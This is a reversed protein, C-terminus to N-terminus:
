VYMSLPGKRIKLWPGWVVKIRGQVTTMETIWIGYFLRMVIKGSNHEVIKHRLAKALNTHKFLFAKYYLTHLVADFTQFSNKLLNKWQAAFLSLTEKAGTCSNEYKKDSPWM